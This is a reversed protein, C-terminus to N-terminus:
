QDHGDQDDHDKNEEKEDKNLTKTVRGLVKKVSEPLIDMDDANEMISIIEAGCLGWIVAIRLYDVHLLMESQFAAAVLMLECVKKAIGKLAASSSLGGNKSKKSKRFMGAVVLGTIYDIAMLIVLAIVDNNWEGFISTFFVGFGSTALITLFYKDNM